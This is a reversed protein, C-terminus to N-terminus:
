RESQRSVYLRQLFLIGRADVCGSRETAGALDQNPRGDFYGIVNRKDQWKKADSNLAGTKRDTVRLHEATHYLAVLGPDRVM